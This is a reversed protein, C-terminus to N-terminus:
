PVSVPGGPWNDPLPPDYVPAPAYVPAPDVVPAPDPPYSPTSYFKTRSAFKRSPPALAGWNVVFNGGTGVAVSAAEKVGSTTSTVYITGSQASGDWGFQQALINTYGSFHHTYAVVFNGYHDMDVSSSDDYHASVTIAWGLN